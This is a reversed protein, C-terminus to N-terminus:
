PSFLLFGGVIILFLGIVIGALGFSTQKSQAEQHAPVNPFFITLFVGIAIMIVALIKSLLWWIM